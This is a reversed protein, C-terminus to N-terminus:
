FENPPSAEPVWSFTLIQTQFIQIFLASGLGLLLSLFHFFSLGAKAASNNSQGAGAARINVSTNLTGCVPQTAGRLFVCLLNNTRGPSPNEAKGERHYFLTEGETWATRHSITNTVKALSVSPSESLPPGPVQLGPCQIPLCTTDLSGRARIEQREEPTSM